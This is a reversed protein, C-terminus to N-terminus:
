RSSLTIGLDGRELYPKARAAGVCPRDITEEPGLRFLRDAMQLSPAAQSHISDRAWAGPGSETTIAPRPKSATNDTEAREAPVDGHELEHEGPAARRGARHVRRESHLCPAGYEQVLAADSDDPVADRSGRRKGSQALMPAAGSRGTPDRGADGNGARVDAPQGRPPGIGGEARRIRLGKSEDSAITRVHCLGIRERARGEPCSNAFCQARSAAGSKAEAHCQVPPPDARINGPEVLGDAPRWPIRAEDPEPTKPRM